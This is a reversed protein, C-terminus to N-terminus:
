CKLTRFFLQLITKAECNLESEIPLKLKGIKTEGQGVKGLIEIAKALSINKTNLIRETEKMVLLSAFCILIHSEIRKTRWHFIPREALDNKSMRFAKEVKWLNHYRDIIENSKTENNLNTWYGKLGNYQQDAKVKGWDIMVTSKPKTQNKFILYKSKKILEKKSAIKAELKKIIKERNYQDKKARKDRYDVILRKNKIEGTELKTQFILEITKRKAFDNTFIREKTKKPLNKLRAGVIYSLEEHELFLINKKQFCEPM